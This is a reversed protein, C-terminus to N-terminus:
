LESQRLLEDTDAHPPIPEAPRLLRDPDMPADSPRLLIRQLRGQNQQEIVRMARAIHRSLTWDAAATERRLRALTELSSAESIQELCDVIAARATHDTLYELGHLLHPVAHTSRLYKLGLLMANRRMTDEGQLGQWFPEMEDPPLAAVTMGLAQEIALMQSKSLHMLWIGRRSDYLTDCVEQALLSLRLRRIPRLAVVLREEMGPDASSQRVIRLLWGVAEILVAFREAFTEPLAPHLQAVLHQLRTGMEEQVGKGMPGLSEIRTEESPAYLGTAFEVAEVTEPSWLQALRAWLVEDAATRDRANQRLSESSIPSNTLLEEDEM